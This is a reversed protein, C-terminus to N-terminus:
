GLPAKAVKRPRQRHQLQLALEAHELQEVAATASWHVKYDAHNRVRPARPNKSPPPFEIRVGDCLIIPKYEDPVSAHMVPSSRYREIHAELGQHPGSWSVGCVKRSPLKWRTFGDFTQWFRPVVAPEVLNVFAYGLSSCSQFDIPLYLFNYLGKFGEEDMMSLVMARSYNNPVNRLMVTTRLEPPLEILGQCAQRPEAASWSSEHTEQATEPQSSSAPAQPEDDAAAHRARRAARLCRRRQRKAAAQAQHMEPAEFGVTAGCDGMSFEQGFGMDVPVEVPGMMPVLWTVCGHPAPVVWPSATPRHRLEENERSLRSVEMLLREMETQRPSPPAQPEDDEESEVAAEVEPIHGYCLLTKEGEDEPGTDSNTDSWGDMTFSVPNDERDTGKQCEEEARRRDTNSEYMAPDSSCRVLPAGELDDSAARPSDVELFTHRVM